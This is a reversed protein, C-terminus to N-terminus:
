AAIGRARYEGHLELIAPLPILTGTNSSPLAPSAVPQREGPISRLPKFIPLNAPNSITQDTLTPAEPFLTAQFRRKLDAPADRWLKGAHQAFFRCAGLAADVDIAEVHCAHAEIEAVTLEESVRDMEPQYLDKPIRGELYGDLLRGRRTRLAAAIGELRVREAEAQAQENRRHELVTLELTRLYADSPRLSELHEIWLAELAEKRIPPACNRRCQYYPYRTGKKGRSWAATLPTRCHGCRMWGRLPFDPHLRRHRRGESQDRRLALQVRAFTAEDVLAEFVGSVVAGFAEIQGCYVRSALIRSWTQAAVPRGSRARLGARTLEELVAAPTHGVAVLEFGQRVLPATAPDQIIGGAGGRVYGLPSQWCWRGRSVAARMGAKTRESRQDNDFQAYAAVLTELLRGAATDEILETVSRIGVGVTALQRRILLHDTTDRAFRSLAYVVVYDVRGRNKRCYELMRRFEVRETTKASEGREEFVADVDWNQRRCYDACAARQTELSLNAVQEQTSVRTYIVARTSM